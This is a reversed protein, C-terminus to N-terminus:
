QPLLLRLVIEFDNKIQYLWHLFTWIPISLNFKHNFNDTVHMQIQLSRWQGQQKVIIRRRKHVKPNAIIRNDKYVFNTSLFIM